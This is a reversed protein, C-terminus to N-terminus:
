IAKIRIQEGDVKAKMDKLVENTKHFLVEVPRFTELDPIDALVSHVNGMSTPMGTFAAYFNKVVEPRFAPAAVAHQLQDEIRILQNEWALNRKETDILVKLTKVM